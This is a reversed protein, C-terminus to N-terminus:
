KKTEQAWNANPTFTGTKLITALVEQQRKLYADQKQPTIHNHDSEVMPIAEKPAPIQDFATFVGAPPANASGERGSASATAASHSRWPSCM